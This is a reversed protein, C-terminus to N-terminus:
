LKLLQMAEGLHRRVAAIYTSDTSPDNIWVVAQDLYWSIAWIRHWGLAWDEASLGGRAASAEAHGGAAIYTEILDRLRAPDPEGVTGHWSALDLLAPGNFARAFDLLRWGSDAIHLSTPHFESHCLGFPALYFGDVLAEARRALRRLMESMDAVDVWRGSKVLTAVRDLSHAALGSLDDQALTNLQPLCPVTHLVVAARAGDADDADRQPTGLDELLMGLMHGRTIAALLGPVPVGHEAALHLAIHESTFPEDAYKFIATSGDVLHLREVGSLRWARISERRIVGIDATATLVRLLQDVTEEKM